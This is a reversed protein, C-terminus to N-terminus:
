FQKTGLAGLYVTLRVKDAAVHSLKSPKELVIANHNIYLLPVGSIFM